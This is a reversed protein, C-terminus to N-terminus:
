WTLGAKERRERSNLLYLRHQHYRASHEDGDTRSLPDGAAPGEDPPPAENETEDPGPACAGPTSMRVGLIEAGSFAPFPTPGYERLALELRRVVPLRGDRGARYKEGRRLEPSSRIIRGTYSQATIGGTRIAELVEDALPTENYMTRTLLGRSEARVEHPTGIPISFREAPTGHITMGHNYICRFPSRSARSAHDISRNFSGPDNEERYDGHVDHIEAPVNFVAAYAEVLRGSGDGQARSVIRIDELDWIRSFVAEIRAASAPGADDDGDPDVSIGFKKCAAMIRDKVESLTVGNMPYQAANDAQNVYSWAARARAETDIPYRGNKPDAYTVDGYPKKDAVASRRAKGSGAKLAEWEAMAKAAAAQVDPHTKNGRGDHGEAWNRVIGVAMEIAKSEDHGQGILHHAVHQIYAPLQRGKHHWLGPGAPNGIPEHVTSAAATHSTM